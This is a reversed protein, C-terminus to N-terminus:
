KSTKISSFFFDVAEPQLRRGIVTAQFVTNAHNFIRSQAQMPEGDPGTGDIRTMELGGLAAGTGSAGAAAPAALNVSLADLLVQKIPAVRQAEALELRGIAFTLDGASCSTLAMTVTDGAMVLRRENVSPRCPFLAFLGHVARVERWDFTPSCGAVM